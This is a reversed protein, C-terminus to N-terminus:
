VYDLISRSKTKEKTPNSTHDKLKIEKIERRRKIENKLESEFSLNKHYANSPLWKQIIFNLFQENVVNPFDIFSRLLLVSNWPLYLSNINEQIFLIRSIILIRQIEATILENPLNFLLRGEETIVTYNLYNKLVLLYTKLFDITKFYKTIEKTLEESLIKSNFVKPLEYRPIVLQLNEPNTKLNPIDKKVNKALIELDRLSQLTILLNMDSSLSMAYKQKQLEVITIDSLSPNPLETIILKNYDISEKHQLPLEILKGCSVCQLVQMQPYTVLEMERNCSSCLVM